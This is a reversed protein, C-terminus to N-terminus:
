TEFPDLDKQPTPPLAGCAFSVFFLGVGFRLAKIIQM